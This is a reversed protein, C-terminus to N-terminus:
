QPKAQALVSDVLEDRFRELQEIEGEPWSSATALPRIALGGISWSFTLPSFGSDQSPCDALRLLM